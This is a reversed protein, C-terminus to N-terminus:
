REKGATSDDVTDSGRGKGMQQPRTPVNTPTMTPTSSPVPEPLATPAPPATSLSTPSETPSAAVSETPPSTPLETPSSTPSEIPALTPSSTVASPQPSPCQGLNRLSNEFGNETVIKWSQLFAQIWLAEDRAFALISQAAPGDPNNRNGCDDANPDNLCCRARQQEANGRPDGGCHIGGNDNIVDRITNAGLWACCDETQALLPQRRDDRFALCIDTNLMMEHGEVSSDLGTDSRMWQNKSSTGNIAREPIWGKALMSVYYNNNFRRSNEADSWWGNYGSNEVDARGLTHVGMLAAAGDWDLGLADVFTREVAACGEEPNPLRGRAFECETATTRGFRFQDKFNVSQDALFTMVAEAAIVLFDALSVGGCNSQYAHLLSAGHEGEKLCAVLGGNDPDNMDTCADSGGQGGAYDMFDHGAMRLVCGAWDAWPCSKTTCDRPLGELVQTVSEAVADYMEVTMCPTTLVAGSPCEMLDHPANKESSAEEAHFGTSSGVKAEKQFLSAEVGICSKSQTLLCTTAQATTTSDTLAFAGFTLCFLLRM